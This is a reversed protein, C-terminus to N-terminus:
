GLTDALKYLENEESTIRKGLASKLGNFEKDFDSFKSTITAGDKWQTMFKKFVEGITGMEAIYKQAVKVLENNNSNLLMPYLNKDEIALHVNLKGALAVLKERIKQGGNAKDMRIITDIETVHVLIEKHQQKLNQSIM